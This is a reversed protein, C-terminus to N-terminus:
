QIYITKHNAFELLGQKALERGYGSHKTGGFPLRPDSKVLSNVFVAGDDINRLLSEYKEFNETFLSVGLGYSSDNILELAEKEDSFSKVALLPGFTEEKFIPMDTTVNEVLTPQFYCGEHKGGYSLNAGMEVSKDLQNKLKEALDERALISIYTDEDTPSGVNLNKIKEKILKLFKDYINEHVLLRKGAICSQGTNQFRANICIEATKELDADEFVVLANNGGLELVTKKLAKGAQSAVISGAKTSGTLTVGKILKHNIISKVQDVEIIIHSVTHPEFGAQEILEQILEGCGLTNPSHKIIVSNGLMLNPAVVRFIQWFPYNWPMIGLIVGMPEYSIYSQQADTKVVEAKLFDPAKEAYFNCVWACKEIETISQSIPKGMEKTIMEAYQIKNQVLLNAVRKMKESRSSPKKHRFKMFAENAKSLIHQIKEESLVQYSDLKSKTYPNYTQFTSAM